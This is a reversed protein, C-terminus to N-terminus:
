RGGGASRARMRREMAERRREAQARRIEDYGEGMGHRVHAAMVTLVESTSLSAPVEAADGIVQLLTLDRVVPAWQSLLSMVDPLRDCLVVEPMGVTYPETISVLYWPPEVNGGGTLGARCWVELELALATRSLDIMCDWGNLPMLRHWDADAPGTLTFLTPSITWTGDSYHMAHHTETVTEPTQDTM